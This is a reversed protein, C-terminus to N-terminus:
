ARWRRHYKSTSRRPSYTAAPILRLFVGSRERDPTKRMEPGPKGYGRAFARADSNLDVEPSRPPGDTMPDGTMPDDTMLDDTMLDYSRRAGM